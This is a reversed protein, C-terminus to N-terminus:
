ISASYSQFRQQPLAQRMDGGAVVQRTSSIGVLETCSRNALGHMIRLLGCATNGARAVERLFTEDPLHLLSRQTTPRILSLRQALKRAMLTRLVAVFIDVASGSSCSPTVHSAVVVVVEGLAGVARLVARLAGLALAVAVAAARPKGFPAGRVAFRVRAGSRRFCRWCRPPRFRLGHRGSWGHRGGCGVLSPHRVAALWSFVPCM